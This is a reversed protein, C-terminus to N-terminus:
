NVRMSKALLIKVVILGLISSLIVRTIGVASQPGRMRACIREATLAPPKRVVHITNAFRTITPDCSPQFWNNSVRLTSIICNCSHLAEGKPDWLRGSM